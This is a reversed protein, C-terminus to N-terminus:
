APGDDTGTDRGCLAILPVYGYRPAARPYGARLWHIFRVVAETFTMVVAEGHVSLEPM